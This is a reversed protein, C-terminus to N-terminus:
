TMIYTYQIIYLYEINYWTDRLLYSFIANNYTLLYVSCMIFQM